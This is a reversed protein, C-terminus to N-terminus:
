SFPKQIFHGGKELVGHQAIVNDAHGSMYLVRIEPYEKSIKIFLDKGNMDPMVVNTLILDVKGDKNAVAKLAEAGNRDLITTYGKMKLMTNSLTLMQENDELLLITEFGRLEAPNKGSVKENIM